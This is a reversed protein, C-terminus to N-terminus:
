INRYDCLPSFSFAVMGPYKLVDLYEVVCGNSAGDSALITYVGATNDLLVRAGCLANYEAQTDWSAATNPAVMWIQGNTAPIVAVSGAVSATETSTEAAIGVIRLTTTPANTVAACVGTAGAAKTVPEGAKIRSVTGDAGKSGLKVYYRVAGSFKANASEFPQIDGAAM